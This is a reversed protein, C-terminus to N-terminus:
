CNIKIARCLAEFLTRSIDTDSVIRGNEEALNIQSPVDSHFPAVIRVHYVAPSNRVEHVNAYYAMNDHIFNIMYNKVM